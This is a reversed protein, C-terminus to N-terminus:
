VLWLGRTLFVWFVCCIEGFAANRALNVNNLSVSVNTVIGFAGGILAVIGGGYGGIGDALFVVGFVRRLSPAYARLVRVGAHVHLLCVLGLLLDHFGANM